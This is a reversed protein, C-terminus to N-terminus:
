ARPLVRPLFLMPDVKFRAGLKAAASKSLNRKGKLFASLHTKHKVYPLLDVQRLGHEQM